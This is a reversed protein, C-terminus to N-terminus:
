TRTAPLQLSKQSKPINSALGYVEFGGPRSIATSYICILNPCQLSLELHVGLLSVASKLSCQVNILVRQLSLKLHLSLLSLLFSLVVNCM